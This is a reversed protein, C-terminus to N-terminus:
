QREVQWFTTPFPQCRPAIDQRSISLPLLGCQFRVAAPPVPEGLVFGPPSFIPASAQYGYKVWLM